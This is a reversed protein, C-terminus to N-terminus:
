GKGPGSTDSGGVDGDTPTLREASGALVDQAFRENFGALFGLAANFPLEAGQDVEIAPLLGADVVAVVVVGLIAGVFPRVGGFTEILSGAAEYDLELRGSTMRQFVSVIAGLGGSILAVGAYAPTDFVVFAVGLLASFGGLLVAGGFMGRAYRTQAIRQASERLRKEAEDLQASYLAMQKQFHKGPEPPAEPVTRTRKNEEALAGLIFSTLGYANQAHMQRETQRPSVAPPMKRRSTWWRSLRLRWGLKPDPCWALADHALQDLRFIAKYADAWQFRITSLSVTIRFRGGPELFVGGIGAILAVAVDEGGRNRKFIDVLELLASKAKERKRADPLRRWDSVAVLRSWSVDDEERAEALLRDFKELSPGPEEDSLHSRNGEADGDPKFNRAVGSGTAHDEPRKVADIRRDYSASGAPAPTQGAYVAVV